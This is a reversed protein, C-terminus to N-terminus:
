PPVSALRTREVVFTAPLLDPGPPAWRYVVHVSVSTPDQVIDISTLEVGPVAADIESALRSVETSVNSGSWSARRAAADVSSEVMSRALLLFGVQVILLLLLFFVGMAVMGEITQSGHEVRLFGHVTGGRKVLYGGGNWSGAPAPPRHGPGRHHRSGVM